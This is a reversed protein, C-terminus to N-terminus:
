LSPVSRGSIDRPHAGRPTGALVRDERAPQDHQDGRQPPPSADVQRVREGRGAPPTHDEEPTALGPHLACLVAMISRYMILSMMSTGSCPPELNALRRALIGLKEVFVPMVTGALTGICLLLDPDVPPLPNGQTSHLDLHLRVRSMYGDVTALISDSVRAIGGLTGSPAELEAVLAPLYAIVGRVDVLMSPM